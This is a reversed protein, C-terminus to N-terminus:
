NEIIIKLNGNYKLNGTPVENKVEPFVTCFM